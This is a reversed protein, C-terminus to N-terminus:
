FETKNNRRWSIDLAPLCVRSSTVGLTLCADRGSEYVRAARRRTRACLRADARRWLHVALVEVELRYLVDRGRHVGREGDVDVAFGEDVRMRRACGLWGRARKEFSGSHLDLSLSLSVRPPRARAAVRAREYTKVLMEEIAKKKSALWPPSSSVQMWYMPMCARACPGGGGEGKEEWFRWLRRARARGLVCSRNNGKFRLAVVRVVFAFRHQEAANAINKVNGSWSM